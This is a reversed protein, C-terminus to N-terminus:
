LNGIKKVHTGGNIDKTRKIEMDQAVELGVNRIKSALFDLWFGSQWGLLRLALMWQEIEQM